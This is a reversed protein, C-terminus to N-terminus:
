CKEFGRCFQNSVTRRKQKSCRSTFTSTMVGGNNYAWKKCNLCKIEDMRCVQALCIQTKIEMVSIEKM